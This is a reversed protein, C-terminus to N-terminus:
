ILKRDNPKGRLDCKCTLKTFLSAFCKEGKCGKEEFDVVDDAKRKLVDSFIDGLMEKVTIKMQGAPCVDSEQPKTESERRYAAVSYSGQPQPVQARVHLVIVVALLIAQYLKPLRMVRNQITFFDGSKWQLIKKGM